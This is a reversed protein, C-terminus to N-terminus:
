GGVRVIGYVPRPAVPAPTRYDYYNSGRAGANFVFTSGGTVQYPNDRRASGSCDSCCAGIASLGEWREGVAFAPLTFPQRNFTVNQMTVREPTEVSGSQQRVISGKGGMFFLLAVIVVIAAGIAYTKQKDNM